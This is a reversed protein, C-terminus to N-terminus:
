PVDIRGADIVRVTRAAVVACALGMMALRPDQTFGKAFRFYIQQTIVAVRFSALVVHFLLDDVPRGTKEEYRRVIEMRTLNGPLYTLCLPLARLAEDDTAEIWYALVTGLDTMPDGVTSLEWDLVGVIQSLDAADLVVNDYKFDNHVMAVRGVGTAGRLHAPVNSRLWAVIRVLDSNEDVISKEYREIWGDVQRQVYGEPKGVSAWAPTTVDVAHLAVLADVFNESLARMTESSLATDKPVRSRLVRGALKEMAFFPVGIISDDEVIAHVHPVLSKGTSASRFVLELKEIIRAERVVDHGAKIHKAGPPPTRVILERAGDRVLLTINSAGGSVKEVTTSSSLELRACLASLQTADLETV